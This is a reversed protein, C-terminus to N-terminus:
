LLMFEKSNGSWSEDSMLEGSDRKRNGFWSEDSMLEGSDRKRNGFGSEDNMLLVSRRISGWYSQKSSPRLAGIGHKISSLM